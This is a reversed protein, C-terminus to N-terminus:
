WMVMVMVMIVMMEIMMEGIEGLENLVMVEDIGNMEGLVVLVWCWGM